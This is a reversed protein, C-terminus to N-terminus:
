IVNSYERPQRLPDDEFDDDNSSDEDGELGNGHYFHHGSGDDDRQPMLNRPPARRWSPHRQSKVQLQEKHRLYMKIGGFLILLFTIWVWLVILAKEHGAPQYEISFLLAGSNLQVITLIGVVIATFRHVFHWRERPSDGCQSVCEGYCGDMEEVSDDEDDFTVTRARELRPEVPPRRMGNLVQWCVAVLLVLGTWHHASSMHRAPITSAQEHRMEMGGVAVAVALIAICMALGNSLVHVYIWWKPILLRFWASGVALPMVIAFALTALIGHAAFAARHDYLIESDTPKSQAPPSTSANGGNPGETAPIVCSTLPIQIAGHHAHMGLTESEGTAYLLTWLDEAPESGRVTPPAFQSFHDVTFRLVGEYRRDDLHGQLNHKTATENDVRMAQSVDNPSQSLLQYLQVPPKTLPVGVVARSNVMKGESSKAFGVGLWGQGIYQFALELSDSTANHKWHLVMQPALTM